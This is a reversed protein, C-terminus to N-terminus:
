KREKTKPDAIEDAVTRAQLIIRVDVYDCESEAYV